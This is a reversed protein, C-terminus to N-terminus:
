ERQGRARGANTAGRPLGRSPQAAVVLGQGRRLPGVYLFEARGAGLDVAGQPSHHRAQPIDRSRSFM